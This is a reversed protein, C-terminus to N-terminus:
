QQSCLEDEESYSESYPMDDPQPPPDRLLDEPYMLISNIGDPEISHLRNTVPLSPIKDYANGARPVSGTDMWKIVIPHATIKKVDFDCIELTEKSRARSLAVYAQGSVFVGGIHVRLRAISQGQCKHITM